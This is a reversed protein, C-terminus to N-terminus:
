TYIFILSFLFWICVFEVPVFFIFYWFLTASFILHFVLSTLHILIKRSQEQTQSLFSKCLLFLIKTIFVLMFFIKLLLEKKFWYFFGKKCKKTLFNKKWEFISLWISYYKVCLKCLWLSYFVNKFLYTCLPFNHVKVKSNKDSYWILSFPIAFKKVISSVLSSLFYNFSSRNKLKWLKRIIWM